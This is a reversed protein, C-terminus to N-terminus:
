KFIEEYTLRGDLFPLCGNISNPDIVYGGKRTKVISFNFLDYGAKNPGKKGNIDVVFAALALNGYPMLISGDAIVYATNTVNFSEENYGGCGSDTRYESYRPLCGGSLANGECKKIIKLNHAFKEYFEKCGTYDQGTNTILGNEDQGYHCNISGDLDYTTKLLNQSYVSYEKKFQQKLVNKGVKNVVTPLTMAAVIGIIGLTILVEALTFARKKM